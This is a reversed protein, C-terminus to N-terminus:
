LKINMLMTLVQKTIVNKAFRIDEMDEKNRLINVDVKHNMSKRMKLLLM